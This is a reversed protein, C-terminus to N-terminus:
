KDEDKKPKLKQARDLDKSIVKQFERIFRENNTNNPDFVISEGTVTDKTTYLEQNEKITNALRQNEVRLTEVSNVASLRTENAAVLAQVNSIIENTAAGSSIISSKAEGIVESQEDMTKELENIQQVVANISNALDAERADDKEDKAKKLELKLNELEMKRNFMETQTKNFEVFGQNITDILGNIMMKSAQASSQTAEGFAEKIANVLAEESMGESVNDKAGAATLIEDDKKMSEELQQLKKSIENLEKAKEESEPKANVDAQKQLLEEKQAEKQLIEAALFVAFKDKMGDESFHVELNGPTINDNLIKMVNNIQTVSESIQQRGNAQMEQNHSFTTVNQQAVQKMETVLKQSGYPTVFGQKECYEKMSIEVDKGNSDTYIITEYGYKDLRGTRKAGPPLGGNQDAIYKFLDYMSNFQGQMQKSEIPFEGKKSGPEVTKGYILLAEARDAATKARIGREFGDGMAYDTLPNILKSQYANALREAPTEYGPAMEKLDARADKKTKINLDKLTGSAKGANFGTKAGSVVGSVGAFRTNAWNKVNQKAADKTFLSEKVANKASAFRGENNVARNTKYNDVLRNKARKHENSMNAKAAKHRAHATKAAGMAVGAGMLGAKSALKGGLMEDKIKKGISFGGGMDAGFMDGIWKPAKKAFMLIGILLVLKAFAGMGDLQFDNLLSILLFMIAIIGLKIFLSLYTKGVMKLWKSFPGSKASKPDIYTVIFLPALLQLVVLEVMRLAIDIAFSLLIYTIFIGIVTSVIVIYNYVYVTEGEIKVSEDIYNDIINIDFEGTQAMDNYAKVAEGCKTSCDTTTVGNEDILAKDISLLSGLAINKLEKGPSSANLNNVNIFIRPIYNESVVKEQIEYGINFVIPTAVLLVFVMLFNFFVKSIGADKATLKDPDLISNVLLVAMRFLAFIGIIVYMNTTITSIVDEKLLRASAFTDILDYANDIFGFALRDFQIFIQRFMGWVTFALMNITNIM